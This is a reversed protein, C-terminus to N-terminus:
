CVVAKLAENNLITMWQQTIRYVLSSDEVFLQEAVEFGRIWAEIINVVAPDNDELGLSKAFKLGANRKFSNSIISM